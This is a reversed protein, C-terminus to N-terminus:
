TFVLKSRLLREHVDYKIEFGVPDIGDDGISYWLDKTNSRVGDLGLLRLVEARKMGPKLYSSQLDGVMEWRRNDHIDVPKWSSWVNSDFPRKWTFDFMGVRMLHDQVQFALIAGLILTSAGCVVWANKNRRSIGSM